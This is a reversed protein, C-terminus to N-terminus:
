LLGGPLLHLHLYTEGKDSNANIFLYKTENIIVAPKNIYKPDVILLEFSGYSLRSLLPCDLSPINYSAHPKVTFIGSIIDM